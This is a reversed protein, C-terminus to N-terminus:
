YEQHGEIQYSRYDGMATFPNQDVSHNASHSSFHPYQAQYSSNADSSWSMDVNDHYALPFQSTLPEPGSNYGESSLGQQVIDEDRISSSILQQEGTTRTAQVQVCRPHREYSSLGDSIEMTSQSIQGRSESLDFRYLHPDSTPPSSDLQTTHYPFSPSWPKSDHQLML